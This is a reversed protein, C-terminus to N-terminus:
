RAANIKKRLVEASESRLGKSDLHLWVRCYEGQVSHDQMIAVLGKSSLVDANWENDQCSFFACGFPAIAHINCHGDDLHICSGDAQKAPVLTPIRFRIGNKEVLAGPSALLNEEAWAFVDRDTPKMRELDAPILYGPM